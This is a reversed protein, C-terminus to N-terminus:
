LFGNIHAFVPPSFSYPSEGMWAFCGVGALADCPFSGAIDM